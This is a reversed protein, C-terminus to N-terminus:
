TLLEHISRHPKPHHLVNGTAVTKVPYWEEMDNFELLDCATEWAEDLSDAEVEMYAYGVIPLVVEFKAM